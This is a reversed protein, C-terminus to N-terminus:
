DRNLSAKAHMFLRLFTFMRRAIAPNGLARFVTALITFISFFGDFKGTVTTVGAAGHTLLPGGRLQDHLKNNSVVRFHVIPHFCRYPQM